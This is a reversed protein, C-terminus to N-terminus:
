CPAVEAAAELVSIVEEKTREFQDNYGVPCRQLFNHLHHYAQGYPSSPVERADSIVSKLAGMICRPGYHSGWQNQRWGHSRIYEAAELCHQQVATLEPYTKLPIAPLNETREDYYM